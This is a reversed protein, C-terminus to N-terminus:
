GKGELISLSTDMDPLEGRLRLMITVAEHEDKAVGRGNALCRAKAVHARRCAEEEVAETVTCRLDAARCYFGYAKEHQGLEEYLLGLNYLAKPFPSHKVRLYSDMETRLMEKDDRASKMFRRQTAMMLGYNEHLMEREPIVGFHYGKDCNYSIMAKDYTKKAIAMYRASEEATIGNQRARRQAINGRLQYVNATQETEEREKRRTLAKKACYDAQEFANIKSFAIAMHHYASAIAREDKQEEYLAIAEEQYQVADKYNEEQAALLGLNYLTRSKGLRDSLELAKMYHQRSNEYERKNSAVWGLEHETVAQESKDGCAKWIKKTRLFWEEAENIRHLRNHGLLMGYMHYARPIDLRYVVSAVAPIDEFREYTGIKEVTRRCLAYRQTIDNKAALYWYMPLLLGYFALKEELAYRLARKLNWFDIETLVRGGDNIDKDSSSLFDFLQLAWKWYAAHMPKLMPRLVAEEDVHELISYEHDSPLDDLEGRSESARKHYLKTVLLASLCAHIRWANQNHYRRIREHQTLLGWRVAMQLALDWAQRDFSSCQPDEELADAYHRLGETTVSSKFPALFCLAEKQPASLMNFSYELSTMVSMSESPNALHKQLREDLDEPYSPHAMEGSRFSAMMLKIVLPNGAYLDLMPYSYLPAYKPDSSDGTEDLIQKVLAESWKPSLNAIKRSPYKGVITALDLKNSKHEIFKMLDSESSGRFGILVVTRGGQLEALWKAIQERVRTRPGAKEAKVKKDESDSEFESEYHGRLPEFGIMKQEEQTCLREASDIVIVYCYRRLHETVRRRDEQIQTASANTPNYNQVNFIQRYIHWIMSNLTFSREHMRFVFKDRVLGTVCWWWSVYRIFATKGIGMIGYLLIVNDGRDHSFVKCELMRLDENRGLFTKEDVAETVLLTKRKMHLESEEWILEKDERSHARSAADEWSCKFFRGTHQPCPLSREFIQPLWWDQRKIMGQVGNRQPHACMEQRATRMSSRVTQKGVVDMM